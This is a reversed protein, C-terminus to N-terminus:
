FAISLRFSVDHFDQGTEGFHGDYGIALGLGSKNLLSFDAALDVGDNQLPRLPNAFSIAPASTFALPATTFNDSSLVIQYGAKLRLGGSWNGNEFQYGTKAALNLRTSEPNLAPLILGLAGAGTERYGDIELDSHALGIEPGFTWNELNVINTSIRTFLHQVAGNTAGMAAAGLVRRESDIDLDAISYGASIAIKGVRYQGYLSGAISDTEVTGRGGNLENKINGFTGTAGLLVDGGATEYEIGVNASWGDENFGVTGLRSDSNGFHYSSSGIIRFTAGDGSAFAQGGSHEVQQTMVSALTANNLASGASRNAAPQSLVALQVPKGSAAKQRIPSQLGDAHVDLRNQAFGIGFSGAQFASSQLASLSTGGLATLNALQASLDESFQLDIALQFLEPSPVGSEATSLFDIAGAVALQAPDLGGLTTLESGNFGRLVRFIEGDANQMIDPVVTFGLPLEDQVVFNIQEVDDPSISQATFLIIEDGTQPLFIGSGDGLELLDVIVTANSGLVLSGGINIQDHELGPTLGGIEMFIAGDLFMADGTINVIGPSFGPNFIIDEASPGGAVAEQIFDGNITGIGSFIGSQRFTGGARFEGAGNGPRGLQFTGLNVFDGTSQIDSALLMAGNGITLAGVVGTDFQAFGNIILTEATLDGEVTLIGDITALNFISDGAIQTMGLAGLEFIGGINANGAVVLTGDVRTLGDETEVGMEVDMQSTTTVRQLADVPGMADSGPARPDAPADSIQQIDVTGPLDAAAPGGPAYDTLLMQGLGGREGPRNEDEAQAQNEAIMVPRTHPANEVIMSEVLNPRLQDVTISIRDTATETISTQRATEVPQSVPVATAPLAIDAAVSTALPAISQRTTSIVSSAAAAPLAAMDPPMGSVTLNGGVMFTSASGINFNGTITANGSIQAVSVLNSPAGASSRQDIGGRAFFNGGVKLNVNVSSFDFPDGFISRNLVINGNVILDGGASLSSLREITLSGNIVADDGVLTSSGIGQSTSQLMDKGITLDDRITFDADFFANGAIQLAGFAGKRGATSSLNGRINAIGSISVMDDFSANGRVLMNGKMDGHTAGIGQRIIFNSGRSTQLDGAITLNGRQEWNGRRGSGDGLQLSAVQAGGLIDFEGFGRIVFGDIALENEFANADISGGENILVVPADSITEAVLVDTSLRAGQQVTLSKGIALRRDSDLMGSLTINDFSASVEGLDVVAENGVVLTESNLLQIAAPASRSRENFNVSGNANINGIKYEVISSFSDSLNFLGGADVNLNDIKVNRGNGNSQFTAMGGARVTLNGISPSLILDNAASDEGPDRALLIGEVIVNDATIGGSFDIRSSNGILIRKYDASRITAEAENGLTFSNGNLNRATLLGSGEITLEDIQIDVDRAVLLGARQLVVSSFNDVREEIGRRDIFVSGGDVILSGSQRQQFDHDADSRITISGKVIATDFQYDQIQLIGLSEINLAGTVRAEDLTVSGTSGVTLSSSSLISDNARLIGDVRQLGTIAPGLNNIQGSGKLEVFAKPAIWSIMPSTGSGDQLTVQGNDVSWLGTLGVGPAAGVAAASEPASLANGKLVTLVAGDRISQRGLKNDLSLVNLEALSINRDSGGVTLLGFNDIRTDVVLAGTLQLRSGDTNTILGHDINDNFIPGALNLLGRNIVAANSGFTVSDLRASGDNVLTLDKINSDEISLFGGATPDVPAVSTLISPNASLFDQGLRNTLNAFKFQPNNPSVLGAIDTSDLRVVGDGILSTSPTDANFEPATALVTFGNNDLLSGSVSFHGAQTVTIDGAVLTPATSQLTGGKVQSDILFAVGDGEILNDGGFFSVNALLASIAFLEPGAGEGIDVGTAIGVGRRFLDDQRRNEAAGFSTEIRNNGFFSADGLNAFVVAFDSDTVRLTSQNILLGGGHIKTGNLAFDAASGLNVNLTGFAGIVLNSGAAFSLAPGNSGSSGPTQKVEVFSEVFLKGGDIIELKAGPNIAIGAGSNIVIDIPSETNLFQLDSVSLIRDAITLFDPASKVLRAADAGSFIIPASVFNLGESTISASAGDAMIAGAGTITSAKITLNSGDNLSLEGAAEIDLTANEIMVETNAFFRLETALVVNGSINAQPLSTQIASDDGVDISGTGALRGGNIDLNDAVTIFDNATVTGLDLQLIESDLRGNAVINGNEIILQKIDGGGALTLTRGDQLTLKADSELRDISVDAVSIRVDVGQIFANQPGPDTGPPGDALQDIDDRDVWNSADEGGTRCVTSFEDDGCDGRWLYNTIDPNAVNGNLNTRAVAFSSDTFFLQYALQEDANYGDGFGDIDNSGFQFTFDEVTRTVGDVEVDQGIYTVIFFTGDNSQAVLADIVNGGALELQAYLAVRGESNVSLLQTRGDTLSTDISLSRETFGTPQGAITFQGGEVTDLVTGPALVPVIVQNAMGPNDIRWYSIPLVSNTASERARGAFFVEGTSSLVLDDVSEFRVDGISTGSTANIVLLAIESNSGPTLDELFIAQTVLDDGPTGDLATEVNSLTFVGTDGVVSFARDVFQAGEGFAAIGPTSTFFSYGGYTFGGINPGVQGFASSNALGTDFFVIQDVAASNASSIANNLSGFIRDESAFRLSTSGELSSIERYSQGFDTSIAVINTTNFVGPFPTAENAIDSILLAINDGNILPIAGNFLNGQDFFDGGNILGLLDSQPDNDGVDDFLGLFLQRGDAAVEGFIAYGNDIDAVSYNALVVSGGLSADIPSEANPFTRTILNPSASDAIFRNSGFNTARFLVSGDSGILVPSIGAAPTFTFDGVVDDSDIVIETTPAEDSTQAYAPGATLSVILAAASSTGHWKRFLSKAHHPFDRTSASTM